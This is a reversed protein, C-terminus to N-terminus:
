GTAPRALQPCQIETPPAPRRCHYVFAPPLNAWVVRGQVVEEFETELSRRLRRAPAAWSMHPYAFTTFAGLPSLAVVASRLVDDQRDPAFAAWPLGSVIADAHRHGRDALLDALHRADATVVEVSPFREALRQAFRENIEVAIHHGRGGLRQQIASTFAGTGPGLEVVVPDGTRAIPATVKHALATGSPAVAGVTM